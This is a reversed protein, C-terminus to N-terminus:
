FVKAVAPSSAVMRRHSTAVSLKLRREHSLSGGGVPQRKGRVAAREGRRRQGTVDLEPVQRGPLAQEVQRARGAVNLEERERGVAFPQERAALPRSMM